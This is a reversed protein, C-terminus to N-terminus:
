EMLAGSRMPSGDALSSYNNRLISSGTFTIMDAVINTYGNASSNGTFQLNGQKMYLAGDFFSNSDGSIVNNSNKPSAITPDQFFLVGEIGANTKGTNSTPASLKVTPNGTFAIDSYTKSSGTNYFTVGDGTADTAGVQLTTSGSVSMGGGNLIYLGPNFTVVGGTIKIGGCYTGPNLTVDKNTSYNTQDCTGPVTPATLYGFPDIVPQVGTNPKPTICTGSYGGVVDVEKATLCKAVTLSSADNSDSIVACGPTDVNASGWVDIAKPATPDLAIVCYPSAGLGGTGRTNITLSNFNVMKMFMTSMQKSILVEVYNANDKFAGSKPPHNVTIAVGDKGDTLGNSAADQKAAAVVNASGNAQLEHVAGVAAADAAVQARRRYYEAYGLDLTLGLIGMLAAAGSATM